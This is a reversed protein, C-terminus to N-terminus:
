VHAGARAADAEREIATAACHRLVRTPFPDHRAAIADRYWLHIEHEWTFGVGGHAQIGCEIVAKYMRACM